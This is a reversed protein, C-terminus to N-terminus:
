QQADRVRQIAEAAEEATMDGTLMLQGSRIIEDWEAAYLYLHPSVPYNGEESVWDLIDALQPTTVVTRDITKNAPMAGGQLLYRAQTEPSTVFKIYLVAEDPHESWATLNYGIGGYPNFKGVYTGPVVDPIDDEDIIPFKIAGFNNYGMADGWWKWNMFDSMITMVFGAKGGVFMDNMDPVVTTAAAGENFWGRENMDAFIKLANLHPADLWTQEGAQLAAMDEPSATQVILELWTWLVAWDKAGLVICEKGINKIAKCAVDMEKYTTPPNEPDLGAEEFVTKNYYMHHGQNTHPLGWIEKSCDFDTCFAATGSLDAFEEGSIYDNIPVWNEARDFVNGGPENQILDPGEQSAIYAGMADFYTQYPVFEHEVEIWPYKENFLRDTEEWFEPGGSQWDMVRITVPDPLPTAEEPVATVEVVKTVEKEVVEPTGEVIVTEKVTEQVVETVVKEVEVEKTVVVVEPESTAGCASLALALVLLSAITALIRKKM